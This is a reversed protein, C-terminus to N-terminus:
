LIILEKGSGKCANCTQRGDPLTFVESGECDACDIIAFGNEIDKSTVNIIIASNPPYDFGQKYVEMIVPM